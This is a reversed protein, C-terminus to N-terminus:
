FLWYKKSENGPEALIILVCVGSLMLIGVVLAVLVFTKLADIVRVKAQAIQQLKIEQYKAKPFEVTPASSTIYGSISQNSRKDVLFYFESSDVLRIYYEEDEQFALLTDFNSFSVNQSLDYTQSLDEYRTCSMWYFGFFLLLIRLKSGM